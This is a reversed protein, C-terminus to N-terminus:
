APPGRPPLPGLRHHYNAQAEWQPYDELKPLPPGRPLPPPGEPPPPGKPPPPAPPPPHLPPPPTERPPRHEELPELPFNWTSHSTALERQQVGGAAKMEAMVIKMKAVVDVAERKALIQQVSVRNPPFHPMDWRLIFRAGPPPPRRFTRWWPPESLGSKPGGREVPPGTHMGIHDRVFEEWPPYWFVKRSRYKVPNWMRVVLQGEHRLDERHEYFDQLEEKDCEYKFAGAMKLIRVMPRYAVPTSKGCIDHEIVDVRSWLRQCALEGPPRHPRTAKAGCARMFNVLGKACDQPPFAWLLLDAFRALYNAQFAKNADTALPHWKDSPSTEVKQICPWGDDVVIGYESAMNRVVTVYRDFGAPLRWYAAYGGLILGPRPCRRMAKFLEDAERPLDAPMLPQVGGGDEKKRVVDNLNWWVIVASVNGLDHRDLANKLHRATAGSIVEM